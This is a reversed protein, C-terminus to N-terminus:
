YINRFDSVSHVVNTRPKPTLFSDKRHFKGNKNNKNHRFPVALKRVSFHIVTSSKVFPMALERVSFLFVSSKVFPVALKRVSFHIATSYTVFPM